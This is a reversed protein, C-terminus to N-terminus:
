APPAPATSSSDKHAPLRLLLARRRRRRADVDRRSAALLGLRVQEAGFADACQADNTAPTTGKVNTISCLAAVVALCFALSAAMGAARQAPNKAERYLHM